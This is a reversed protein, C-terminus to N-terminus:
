GRNEAQRGGGEALAVVRRAIEAAADPRGRQRASAAMAERRAGDDLIAAVEAELRGADLDAQVLCAAAGAAEAARANHVQHDSASGPLPVLIAPIGWASLEALTMMGARSLVVDSVAWADAMPDIFPIVNVEPPRHHSAFQEHTLRGTAWIVQRERAGGADLWAAVVRNLALSGQSGGTITVVSRSPDLGFHELAAARRSPDPPAIPAGTVTVRSRARAPLAERAEDTALWIADVRPALIRTAIGPRVDLEVIATPIGRRSARWVVPGSVYGGTGIVASPQIEDLWADVERVLRIALWPWKLNRWWRRRHIPEFPFLRHAVGRAPLVGAEVGRSAGAFAVDWDPHVGQVARAIALAPFLHGGTGGGAFAITTM